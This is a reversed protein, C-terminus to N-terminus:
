EDVLPVVKTDATCCTIESKHVAIDKRTVVGVVENSQNVVLLHRMGLGAMLAYVTSFSTEMQVFMPSPNMFRGLDVTKKEEGKVFRIDGLKLNTDFQNRLINLTGHFSEKGYLKNKLIILLKDRLVLGLLQGYSDIGEEESNFDPDVVPFGNHKTNKLVHVIAGVTTVQPLAVVNKNMINRVQIWSCNPPVKRELFPMGKMLCESHYIPHTFMDGVIKTTIVVIFVPLGFSTQGSSELLIIGISFCIRTTGGIHAGAALFAYMQPRCWAKTQPALILLSEALLRGWIAGTVMSPIFIGGSISAGMLAASLTFYYILLVILAKMGFTAEGFILSTLLSVDKQFFFLMMTPIEGEACFMKRPPLEHKEGKRIQICDSMTILCIFSFTAIIILICALELLKSINKKVYKQRWYSIQMELCNWASGTLGGIIGFLIFIPVEFFHYHLFEASDEDNTLFLVDKKLVCGVPAIFAACVGAAIGVSAMDRKERDNQLLKFCRVNKFPIRIMPVRVGLIVGMYMIPGEIGAPLTAMLMLITSIVKAILLKFSLMRQFQIGNLFGIISPMGRGVSVPEIVMITLLGSLMGPILTFLIWGVYFPFFSQIRPKAYYDELYDALYDFKFDLYHHEVQLIIMVCLSISFAVILTVVNRQLALVFNLRLGHKIEENNTIEDQTKEYDLTEFTSVVKAYYNNERVILKSENSQNVVLLHRMGLRTMLSYVTSFSTETQVFFPSTHMFRGLDVTKDEEEKLHKIDQLKFDMEGRGANNRLVNLNEEFSESAYLRHKLIIILNIRLVLGLLQGYSEFGDEESSFDPDVVPFGNHKTNKLVNVIAGVTTVKPLAIVNTNMINQVPIWSCYPPVTKQLLPMGKMLCESQYLSHTLNDAVFKTIIVVIFVPLGFAIQGSSELLIIGISLCIRTTGCIHSAAALFAYMQPRCWAKTQPALILLSEALLRGWAAGTIIHPIFIGGSIAIGMYIASLIFYYVLLVLLPKVGILREDCILTNMLSVDNQFFFLLVTPLQGKGCHWKILTVFENERLGGRSCETVSLLIILSIIATVTSVVVVELIKLWNKKIYKKRWYSIQVELCNWASGTLGGIIGFVIFLLIEFFRYEMFTDRNEIDALFQLDKEMVCGVCHHILILKITASTFSTIVSGFLINTTLEKTGYVIGEELALVVGGIPAVFAACVASAIGVSAMDRRERDNQILKFCRNYKFPFHMMSTLIGLVAGINMVAGEKGAVLCGMLMFITSMIRYILLKFSVTRSFQIGNLFGITGPMGATKPDKESMVFFLSSLMAPVTTFLIWQPILPILLRWQPTAFYLKFQSLLIGHKFHIFRHETVNIIMVSLSVFIAVFCIAINRQVSVALNLAIGITIEEEKTLEDQMKDYNLSEFTSVVKEYKSDEVVVIKSERSRHSSYRKFCPSIQPIPFPCFRTFRHM